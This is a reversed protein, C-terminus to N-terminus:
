FMFNSVVPPKLVEKEELVKLYYLYVTCRSRLPHTPGATSETELGSKIAAVM